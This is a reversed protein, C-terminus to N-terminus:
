RENRLAMFWALAIFIRYAIPSRRPTELWSTSRLSCKGVRRNRCAKPHMVHIGRVNPPSCGLAENGTVQRSLAVSWGGLWAVTPTPHPVRRISICHILTCLTTRRRLCGWGDVADSRVAQRGFRVLDKFISFRGLGIVQFLGGRSPSKMRGSISLSLM